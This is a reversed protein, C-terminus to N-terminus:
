AWRGQARCVAPPVGNHRNRRAVAGFRAAARWGDRGKSCGGVARMIPSRSGHRPEDSM